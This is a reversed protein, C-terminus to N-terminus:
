LDNGRMTAASEIVFSKTTGPGTSVTGRVVFTVRAQDYDIPTKRTGEAYFMLSTVNVSPDTLPTGNQRIVGGVLDYVMLVGDSNTVTFNNGGNQCDGRNDCTYTDGTRITRAMTEIAFSLNNVGNAVAQANRSANIMILYAGAAITMVIAFMGTSVVLEILTYGRKKTMAHPHTQLPM